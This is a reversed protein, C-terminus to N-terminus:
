NLHSPDLHPTFTRSMTRVCRAHFQRLEKYLSFLVSDSNSKLINYQVHIYTHVYMYRPYLFGLNKGHALGHSSDEPLASSPATRLPATVAPLVTLQSLPASGCVPVVASELLTSGGVLLLGHSSGRSAASEAGKASAVVAMEVCLM